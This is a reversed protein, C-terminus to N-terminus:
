RPSPESPEFVCGSEAAPRGVKPRTRRPMLPAELESTRHPPPESHETTGPQVAAQNARRTSGPPPPVKGQRQRQQRWKTPVGRVPLARPTLRSLGRPKSPPSPPTPSAVLQLGEDIEERFLWAYKMSGFVRVRSGNQGPTRVRTRVHTLEPHRMIFLEFTASRFPGGNDTVITVVPEIEGTEANVPADDILPHGVLRETEDLAKQVAEVADRMNM